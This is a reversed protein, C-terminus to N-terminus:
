IGDEMLLSMMILPERWFRVLRVLFTNGWDMRRILLGSVMMSIERQFTSFEREMGLVMLSIVMMLEKRLILINVREMKSIRSMSVKTFMVMKIGIFERVKDKVMWFIDRMLRETRM